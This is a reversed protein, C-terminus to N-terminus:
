IVLLWCYSLGLMRTSTLDFVGVTVRRTTPPSSFSTEFRLSYFIPPLGLPSSGSFSQSPLPLCYICFVSWDERWLPCGVDVFGCIDSVLLFPTKSVSRWGCHSKSKSQTRPVRVRSLSRQYLWCCICFISGDERWLPRGVFVLGFSDFLLLHRTM